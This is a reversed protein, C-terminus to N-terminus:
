RFLTVAAKSRTVLIRAKDGLSDKCTAMTIEYIKSLVAIEDGPTPAVVFIDVDGPRSACM